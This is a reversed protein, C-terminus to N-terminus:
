KGWGGVKEKKRSPKKGEGQSRNAEQTKETTKNSGVAEGTEPEAGGRVSSEGKGRATPDSREGEGRSRGREEGGKGGEGRRM